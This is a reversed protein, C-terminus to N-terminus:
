PQHIKNLGAPKFFIRNGINIKDPLYKHLGYVPIVPKIGFKKAVEISSVIDDVLLFDVGLQFLTRIMDPDDTGFYNIRVGNVRLLETYEVFEPCVSGRLQIFETKREITENVYDINKERRDMNCIMIGPVATRAKEAAGTGCAIFAQHLRNHDRIKEAVMSGLIDHGKLHVNLWINVPMIELVEDLTPISVGEFEPSKWSGADLKKIEELTLEDVRGKGDTTRDVMADHLIVMKGDNTLAVDFEIMHAGAEIAAYFAPLTNEPYTAMAGRHACLGREPM